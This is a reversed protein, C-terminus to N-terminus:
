CMNIKIPEYDESGEPDSNPEIEPVPLYLRPRNADERRRKEEEKKKIDDIIYADLM